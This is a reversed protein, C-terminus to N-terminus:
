HSPTYGENKYTEYQSPTITLTLFSETYYPIDKLKTSVDHLIVIKDGKHHLYMPLHRFFNYNYQKCMMELLTQLSESEKLSYVDVKKDLYNIFHKVQIQLPIPMTTGTVDLGDNIM